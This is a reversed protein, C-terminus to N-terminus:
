VEECLFLMLTQTDLGNRDQFTSVLCCAGVTGLQFYNEIDM